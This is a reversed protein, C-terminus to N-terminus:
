VAAPPALPGRLVLGDPIPEYPYKANIARVPANREENETRLEAVGNELAWTIQAAKLAGAVGRGRHARRVALMEHTAIGRSRDNWSLQGYAVVEGGLLAVFTADPIFRPGDLSLARFDEFSGPHMPVDSDIPIDPIAEAAVEWVGHALDPRDALTTIRVGAPPVVTPPSVGALPLRLSRLRMVCRFGRREAFAVGDPDDEFASVELEVKGLGRAHDSVRGFLATGVGRRRAEPLVCIEGFAAASEKMDPPELCAGEGVQEGDLLALWNRFSPMHARIQEIREPLRTNWRIVDSSIRAIADSHGVGDVVEIMPVFSRSPPLRTM